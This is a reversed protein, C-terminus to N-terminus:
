CRRREWWRPSLALRPLAACSDGDADGGRPGGGKDAVGWVVGFFLCGAGERGWLERGESDSANVFGGFPGARQLGWATPRRIGLSGLSPSLPRSYLILLGAAAVVPPVSLTLRTGGLKKM